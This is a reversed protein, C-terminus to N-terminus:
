DIRPEIAEELLHGRRKNAHRILNYEKRCPKCYAGSFESRLSASGVV